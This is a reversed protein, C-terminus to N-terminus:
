NYTKVSNLSIRFCMHMWSRGKKWANEQYLEYLYKWSSWISTNHHLGLDCFYFLRSAIYMKFIKFVIATIKSLMLRQKKFLFIASNCNKRKFFLWVWNLRLNRYNNKFNKFPCLKKVIKSKNSPTTESYKPWLFMNQSCKKKHLHFVELFHRDEM